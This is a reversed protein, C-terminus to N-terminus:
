LYFIGSPCIPAHAKVGSSETRCTYVKKRFFLPTLYSLYANSARITHHSLWPNSPVSPVVSSKSVQSCAPLHISAAAKMPSSVAGSTIFGQLSMISKSFCNFFSRSGLITSPIDCAGGVSAHPLFPAGLSTSPFSSVAGPSCPLLIPLATVTHQLVVACLWSAEGPM